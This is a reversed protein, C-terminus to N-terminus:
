TMCIIGHDAESSNWICGPLKTGLVETIWVRELRFASQVVWTVSAVIFVGLPVEDSTQFVAGTELTDQGEPFLPTTKEM